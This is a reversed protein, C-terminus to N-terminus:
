DGGNWIKTYNTVDTEFSAVCEVIQGPQIPDPMEDSVFDIYATVMYNNDPDSQTPTQIMLQDDGTGFTIADGFEFPGGNIRVYVRDLTGNAYERCEADAFVQAIGEPAIPEPVPEGKM